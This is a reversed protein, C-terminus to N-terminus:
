ILAVTLQFYFASGAKMQISVISKSTQVPRQHRGPPFYTIAETPFRYNVCQVCVDRGVCCKSGRITAAATILMGVIAPLPFPPFPPAGVHAVAVALFPRPVDFGAGVIQVSSSSVFGFM